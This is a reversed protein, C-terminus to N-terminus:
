NGGSLHIKDMIWESIFLSSSELACPFWVDRQKSCPEVCETLTAWEIIMREGGCNRRVGGGWMGDKKNLTIGKSKGHSKWQEEGVREEVEEEEYDAIIFHSTALNTQCVARLHIATASPYFLLLYISIYLINYLNFLGAVSVCHEFSSLKGLSKIVWEWVCEPPLKAHDPNRHIWLRDWSCQAHPSFGGQISCGSIYQMWLESMQMKQYNIVALEDVVHKLSTARFWCSVWVCMFLVHLSIGWLCYGSDM